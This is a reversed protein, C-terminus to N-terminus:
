EPIAIIEASHEPERETNRINLIFDVAQQAKGSAYIVFRKDNKLVKMWSQIYAVNNEFNDMTIGCHSTLFCSGMEATLEEISYPESGFEEMNLLEKRGLRKTHGTSHITEHFLVQYYSEPDIFSNRKPMNIFDMLPNYYAKDEKHKIEPKLPMELIVKECLAIPNNIRNYDESILEQPIGECQDINYVMYYRLFPILKTEGSNEDTAEKWNWYVVLAPKEDKKVAGGVDKLQKATIFLNRTFNLMLLLWLNIGRYNRKTILNQPPGSSTWPQRWPVVGKDLQQLIRDTVITYVDRKKGNTHNTEM